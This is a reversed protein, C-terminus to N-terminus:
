AFFLDEFVKISIPKTIVDAVVAIKTFDFKVVRIESDFLTQFRCDFLNDRSLPGFPILGHGFKAQAEDEIVLILFINRLKLFYKPIPKRCDPKERRETFGFVFLNNGNEFGRNMELSVKGLSVM